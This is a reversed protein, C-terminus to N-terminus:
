AAGREPTFRISQFFTRGREEGAVEVSCKAIGRSRLKGLAIGAIQRQRQGTADGPGVVVHLRHGGPADGAYLAVAVVAGQAADERGVLVLGDTSARAADFTATRQLSECLATAEAVDEERLENLLLDMGFSM